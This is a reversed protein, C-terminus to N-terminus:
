LNSISRPRQTLCDSFLSSITDIHNFNKNITLRNVRAIWRTFQRKTIFFDNGNHVLGVPSFHPNGTMRARRRRDLLRDASLDIKNAM